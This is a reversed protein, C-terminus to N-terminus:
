CLKGFIPSGRRWFFLLCRIRKIINKIRVIFPRSKPREESVAQTAHESARRHILFFSNAACSGNRKRCLQILFLSINKLLKLGACVTSRVAGTIKQLVTISPFARGTNGMEMYVTMMLIFTSHPVQHSFVARPIATYGHDLMSLDCIYENKAYVVGKNGDYRYTNTYSVYGLASLHQVSSRATTSSCKALAGLEAYSKHCAGMANSFAFLALGVRRESYSLRDDAILMNPLKCISKKM